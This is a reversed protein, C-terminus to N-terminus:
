LTWQHLPAYVYLCLFIFVETFSNFEFLNMHQIYFVKKCIAFLIFTKKQLTYAFKALSLWVPQIWFPPGTNKISNKM